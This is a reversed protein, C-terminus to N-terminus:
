KRKVFVLTAGVACLGAGGFYYYMVTDAPSGTLINKVQSNLSQAIDHGRVLLLVGIVLCIVSIVKQM